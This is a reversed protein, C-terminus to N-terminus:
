EKNHDRRNRCRRMTDRNEMRTKEMEEDDHKFPNMGTREKYNKIAKKVSQYNRNRM